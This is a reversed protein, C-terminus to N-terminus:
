YELDMGGFDMGGMGAMMKGGLMISATTKTQVRPLPQGEALAAGTGYGIMMFQVVDCDKFIGAPVIVETRDGAMMATENVLRQVEAMQMYDWGFNDFHRIESSTWTILTNQGQMGIIYAHFGLVGPIPKWQFVLPQTFDIQQTLDPSAYELTGLFRVTEPVDIGVNGTYNTTLDYRGALAVGDALAGPQKATPWYGTTWDPKYYYPNGQQAKMAEARAAEQEAQSLAAFKFVEPQGPKVQASSGWYRMITFDPIKGPDAAAQGGGGGQAQGREAEPRYLELELQRGLKLGEPIALRAFATRPAIGPSWLRVTLERKAQGPLAIGPPLAVGAPLHKLMDSMDPMGVMRQMSTEAFIGLFAQNDVAGALMVALLLFTSLAFIRM